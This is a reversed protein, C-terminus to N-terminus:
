DLDGDEVIVEEELDNEETDSSLVEILWRDITAAQSWGEGFVDKVQYGTTRGNIFEHSKEQKMYAALKSFTKIMNPPSHHTSNHVLCFMKEFQIHISKYVEILASEKQIRELM